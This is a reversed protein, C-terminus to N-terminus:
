SNSPRNWVPHHGIPISGIQSKTWEPDHGNPDAWKVDHKNMNNNTERKSFVARDFHYIGYRFHM